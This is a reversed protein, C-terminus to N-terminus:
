ELFDPLTFDGEDDRVLYGSDLLAQRAIPNNRALRRVVLRWNKKMLRIQPQEGGDPYYLILEIGQVAFLEILKNLESKAKEWGIRGAPSSVDIRGVTEGIDQLEGLLESIRQRSNPDQDANYEIDNRIIENVKKQQELQFEEAKQLQELTHQQEALDQTRTDLGFRQQNMRDTVQDRRQGYQFKQQELQFKQQELNLERAKHGESALQSRLGEVGQWAPANMPDILVRGLSGALLPNKPDSAMRSRLYASDAVALPGERFRNIVASPDPQQPLQMGLIQARRALDPTIGLGGQYGNMANQFIDRYGIDGAEALANMQAIQDPAMFPNSGLAAIEDATRKQARAITYQPILLAQATQMLKDTFTRDPDKDILQAATPSLAFPNRPDAAQGRARSIPPSCSALFWLCFLLSLSMRAM